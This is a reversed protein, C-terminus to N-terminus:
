KRWFRRDPIYRESRLADKKSMFPQGRRMYQGDPSRVVPELGNVKGGSLDYAHAVFTLPVAVSMWGRREDQYFTFAWAIIDHEVFDVIERDEAVPECLKWGPQASIITVDDDTRDRDM